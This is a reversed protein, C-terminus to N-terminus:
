KSRRKWGAWLTLGLLLAILIGKWGADIPWEELRTVNGTEWGAYEGHSTDLAIRGQGAPYAAVYVHSFQNPQSPDAAVTVFNARIGQSNLLAATLMAYDDCDGQPSSGTDAAFTVMDRPRILLEVVPLDGARPIQWAEALEADHRFGIWRRVHEFIAQIPDAGRPIIRQAEALVEPSHADERVYRCMISLADAVQQDPDDGTVTAEWRLGAPLTGALQDTM